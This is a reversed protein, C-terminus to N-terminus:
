GRAQRWKGRFYAQNKEAPPTDPANAYGTFHQEWISHAQQVFDAPMSRRGHKILVIVLGAQYGRGEGVFGGVVDSLGWGLGADLIAQRHRRAAAPIGRPLIVAVGGPMLAAAIQRASTKDLRISRVAYIFEFSRNYGQEALSGVGFTMASAGVTKARAAEIAKSCRDIGHVTAHARQALLQAHYGIHCGIDLVPGAIGLERVLHILLCAADLIETRKRSHVHGSIREDALVNYFATELKAPVPLRMADRWAIKNNLRWYEAALDHGALTALREEWQEPPMPMTIGWRDALMTDIQQVEALSLGLSLRDAALRGCTVERESFTM